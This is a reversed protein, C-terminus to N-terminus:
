RPCDHTWVASPPVYKCTCSIATTIIPQAGATVGTKVTIKKLTLKENQPKKDSM